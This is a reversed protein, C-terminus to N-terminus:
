RRPLCGRVNQFAGSPTFLPFEICLPAATPCDADTMCPTTCAGRGMPLVGPICLSSRCDRGDTCPGGTAGTRTTFRCVFKTRDLLLDLTPVCARGENCDADRACGRVCHGLTVWRETTGSDGGGGSYYISAECVYGPMRAACEADGTTGIRCPVTCRRNTCPETVCNPFCLGTGCESYTMCASDFGRMGPPTGCRYCTRTGCVALGTCTEGMRPCDTAHDCQGLIRTVARCVLDVCEAEPFCSLESCCPQGVRGCPAPGDPTMGDPRPGTDMPPMGTDRPPAGTDMPPAGTDMPPVGTDMVVADVGGDPPPPSDETPGGESPAVDGPPLPGDGTSGDGAPADFGLADSGGDAGGGDSGGGTCVAGQSGM